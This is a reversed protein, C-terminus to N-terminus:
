YSITFTKLVIAVPSINTCYFVYWNNQLTFPDSTHNKKDTTATYVEAGVATNSTYFWGFAVKASTGLTCSLTVDNSPTCWYDGHYFMYGSNLTVNPRQVDSTRTAPTLTIAESVDVANGYADFYKCDRLSVPISVENGNEDKTIVEVIYISSYIDDEEDNVAFVPCMLTTMLIALAIITAVIRKM